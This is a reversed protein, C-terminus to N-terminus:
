LVIRAAAAGKDKVIVELRQGHPDDEDKACALDFHERWVPKLTNKRVGTEGRADDAASGAIVAIAFPDSSGGKGLLNKDM